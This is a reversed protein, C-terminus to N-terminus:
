QKPVEVGLEAMKERFWAPINEPNRPWNTLEADLDEALIPMVGFDPPNDYDFNSEVRGDAFLKVQAKFWAGTSPSSSADRLDFMLNSDIAFAPYRVEDNRTVAVRDVAKWGLESWTLVVSQDGSEM